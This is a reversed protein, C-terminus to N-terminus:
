FERLNVVEVALGDAAAPFHADVWGRKAAEDWGAGPPLTVSKLLVLRARVLRAARAAVSDSTVAWSHPLRGSRYEDRALFGHADLVPREGREWMRECVALGEIV